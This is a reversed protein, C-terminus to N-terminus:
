DGIGKPLACPGNLLDEMDNQVSGDGEQELLFRGGSSSVM